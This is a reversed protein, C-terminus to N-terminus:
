GKVKIEERWRRSHDYTQGRGTFGHYWVTMHGMPYVAGDPHLTDTVTEM